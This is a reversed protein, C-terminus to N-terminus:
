SAAATLARADRGAEGAGDRDGAPAPSARISTSRLRVRKRCAHIVRTVPKASGTEVQERM